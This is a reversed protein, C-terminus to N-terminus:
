IKRSAALGMPNTGFTIGVGGRSKGLHGVVQDAWGALTDWAKLERQFETFIQLAKDMEVKLKRVHIDFHSDFSEEPNDQIVTPIADEGSGVPTKAGRNENAEKRMAATALTADATTPDSIGAGALEPKNFPTIVGLAEGVKFGQTGGRGSVEGTFARVDVCIIEWPDVSKENPDTRTVVLNGKEDTTEQRRQGKFYAHRLRATMHPDDPSTGKSALVSGISQVRSALDIMASKMQEYSLTRLESDAKSPDIGHRELPYRINYKAQTTLWTSMHSFDRYGGIPTKWLEAAAGLDPLEYIGVIRTVQPNFAIESQLFERFNRM